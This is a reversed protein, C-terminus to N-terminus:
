YYNLLTDDEGLGGDGSDSWERSQDVSKDPDKFIVPILGKDSHNIGTIHNKALDTLEQLIKSDTKLLKNWKKTILCGVIEQINQSGYKKVLDRFRQRKKYYNDPSSDRLDVWYAPAQGQTLILHESASLSNEQITYDYFLIDNFNARLIRGLQEIKDHNLLDSLSRIGTKRIHTMKVTKNEFRFINDSQYYQLGKAYVKIYYRQHKCELSFRNREIIRNFPKGKHNIASKLIENAPITPIVNVGFELNELICFNPDLIFSQCLHITVSALDEFRFDNYNQEGRGQISNWCKHLSGSVYLYKNAILKFEMGHFEATYETIEGTRESTKRFWELLQNKKIQEINPSLVKIKVFDIMQLPTSTESTGRKRIKTM